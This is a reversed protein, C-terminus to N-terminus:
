QGRTWQGLLMRLATILSLPQDLMPHHGTDVLEVYPVKPGLLRDIEEAMQDQIMGREGRIFAARCGLKPLLDRLPGQATFRSPDFKWSWGGDVPRISEEVIHDRVYPLVSQPPLPVFREAIAERTPYVALTRRKRRLIEEEPPPDGLPSDIIVVGDVEADHCAGVTAAVWGGLSHGVVIPRGSAGGAEAATIAEHAWVELDYESRWDSDGHGTLDVAVVRHTGTLFPAIHDWWGSHAAGGHLLVLGPLGEQGWCRLHVNAGDVQVTRHEPPTALATRFWQPTSSSCSTDHTQQQDTRDPSVM